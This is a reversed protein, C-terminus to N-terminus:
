LYYNLNSAAKRKNSVKLNAIKKGSAVINPPTLKTAKAPTGLARAKSIPLQKINTFM